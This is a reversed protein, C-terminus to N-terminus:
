ICEGIIEKLSGLSNSGHIHKDRTNALDNAAGLALVVVVGEQSAHRLHANTHIGHTRRMATNGEAQITTPCENSAEMPVATRGAEEEEKEALIKQRRLKEQEERIRNIEITLGSKKKVKLKFKKCKDILDPKLGEERRGVCILDVNERLLQLVIKIKMKYFNFVFKKQLTKLWYYVSTLMEPFFLKKQSLALNELLLNLLENM